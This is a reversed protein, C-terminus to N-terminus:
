KRKKMPMPAFVSILISLVVAGILIYKFGAIFLLGLMTGIM